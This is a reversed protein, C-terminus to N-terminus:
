DTVPMEGGHTVGLHADREVESTSPLNVVDAIDGLHAVEDGVSAIEPDHLPDIFIIQARDDCAFERRRLTGSVLRYDGAGHRRQDDAERVSASLEAIGIARNPHAIRDPVVVQPIVDDRHCLIVASLLQGHGDLGVGLADAVEETRLFAREDEDWRGLGSELRRACFRRM